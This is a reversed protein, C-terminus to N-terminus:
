GRGTPQANQEILDALTQDLNVAQVAGASLKGPITVDGNEDINIANQALTATPVALLLAAILTQFYTM